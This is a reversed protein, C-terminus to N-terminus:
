SAAAAEDTLGDLAAQLHQRMPDLQKRVAYQNLWYIFGYLAILFVVPLAAGLPIGANFLTLWFPVPSKEEIQMNVQVFFLAIPIGLPLLYWWLINRLLWIQHEVQDLSYAMTTRLPAGAAPAGRQQRKRDVYMFGAVWILAPIELWWTWPSLAGILPIGLGMAVWIPILVLAVGIERADRLYIMRNFSQDHKRLAEALQDANLAAGGQSKWAREFEDLNM